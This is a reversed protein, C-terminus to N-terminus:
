GIWCCSMISLKSRCCGRTPRWRMCVGRVLAEVLPAYEAVARNALASMTQALREVDPLRPNM